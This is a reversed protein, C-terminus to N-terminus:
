DCKKRMLSIYGIMKKPFHELNMHLKSGKITTKKMSNLSYTVRSRNKSPFRTKKDKSEKVLSTITKLYKKNCKNILVDHHIKGERFSLNNESINLTFKNSYSLSKLEFAQVNFTFLSLLFITFLKMVM